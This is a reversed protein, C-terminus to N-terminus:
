SVAMVFLTVTATAAVAAGVRFYITTQNHSQTNQNLPNFLMMNNNTDEASSTVTIATGASVLTTGSAGTGTFVGFTAASISASAGSIFAFGWRWRTYGTPLAFTIPFDTNANTFDVAVKVAVMNMGLIVQAQAASGDEPAGSGSSIRLKFTNQAMNALEANTVLTGVSWADTGTRRAIGTGSLGELASLDNALALTPNGSVGDGNSVTIGAAPQAISRQVWTDTASRVAIGTGSLGEVAALDNALVPTPNGSVGDANTWTIGAAANALSRTAWTSTGTRVALGNTSLGEIAALDDALSFTPNGGSGDPNGIIIGAAPQGLTRKAFTDAGTQTLLGATSNLAALATLTADLPQAEAAVEAIADQVTTASISGTPTFVITGTIGNSDITAKLVGGAALGLQNAAIRFIGTDPDSGFSHAPLSASGNGALVEGADTVTAASNQIVGGTTGDFRAIANDTSSAPAEVAGTVTHPANWRTPTVENTAIANPEDAIPSVFPHTVTITV